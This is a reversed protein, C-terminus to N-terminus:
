GNSKGMLNDLSNLFTRYNEGFQQTLSVLANNLNETAAEMEKRMTGTSEGSKEIYAELKSNTEEVTQSSNKLHADLSKNLNEIDNPLRAFTEANANMTALSESLSNSVSLNEDLIKASATLQGTVASCFEEFEKNRTAIDALSEKTADISEIILRIAKEHGEVQTRYNEQWTVLEKCAENLQQFNEGFQEKM